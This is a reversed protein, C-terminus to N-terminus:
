VMVSEIMVVFGMFSGVFEVVMDILPYNEIFSNEDLPAFATKLRVTEFTCKKDWFDDVHFSYFEPNKFYFFPHSLKENKIKSM